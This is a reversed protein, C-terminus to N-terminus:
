RRRKKYTLPRQWIMSITSLFGIDSPQPLQHTAANTSREVVTSRSLAAGYLRRKQAAAALVDITRLQIRHALTCRARISQMSDNM